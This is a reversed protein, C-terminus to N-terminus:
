CYVPYNEKANWGDIHNTHGGSVLCPILSFLPTGIYAIVPWTCCLTKVFKVNIARLRINTINSHKTTVIYPFSTSSIAIGTASASEEEYSIIMVRYQAVILLLSLM